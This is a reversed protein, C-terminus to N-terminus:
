VLFEHGTAVCATQLQTLTELQQQRLAQPDQPHYSVLCKAVQEGPWQRLELALADGAEFALPRSGPVEVPRAVWYGKGTLLPLVDEGFRGDLIVGASNRGPATRLVAQAILRKFARIRDPGQGHRTAIEELQSRHDFALVCLENWRRTRTTVRHLHELAADERLRRTPSGHAIFHQLEEWSPMAPACGHRSVVLAGCANAWRCCQLLPEGRLWGRLFGAMFADGAGLVNFVEVPFGPGQLGKELADPIAGDFVVC